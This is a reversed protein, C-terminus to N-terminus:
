PPGAFLSYSFGGFNSRNVRGLAIPKWIKAFIPQTWYNQQFSWTPAVTWRNYRDYPDNCRRGGLYEETRYWAENEYSRLSQQVVRGYRGHISAENGTERRM